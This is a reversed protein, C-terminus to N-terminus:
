AILSFIVTLGALAWVAGTLRLADTLDAEPPLPKPEYDPPPAPTWLLSV